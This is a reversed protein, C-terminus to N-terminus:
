KMVNFIDPLFVMTTEYDAVVFIVIAAAAIIIIININIIIIIFICWYRTESIKIRRKIKRSSEL